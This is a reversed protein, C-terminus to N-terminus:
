EKEKGPVERSSALLGVVSCFSIEDSSRKGVAHLKLFILQWLWGWQERSTELANGLFQAFLGFRM